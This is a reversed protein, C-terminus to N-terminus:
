ISQVGRTRLTFAKTHLLEVMGLYICRPQLLMSIGVCLVWASYTLLARSNSATFCVGIIHILRRVLDRWVEIRGVFEGIETGLINALPVFIFWEEHIESVISRM